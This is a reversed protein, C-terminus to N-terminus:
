AAPEAKQGTPIRAIVLAQRAIGIRQDADLLRRMADARRHGADPVATDQNWAHDAQARALRLHFRARRPDTMAAEIRENVTRIARVIYRTAQNRDDASFEAPQARQQPTPVPRDPKTSADPM